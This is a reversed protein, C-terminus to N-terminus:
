SRAIVIGTTPQTRRHHQVPRVWGELASITAEALADETQSPHEQRLQQQIAAVKETVATHGLTNTKSLAELANTLATAPNQFLSSLTHYGITLKQVAQRAALSPRDHPSLIINEPTSM